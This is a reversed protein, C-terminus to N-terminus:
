FFTGANISMTKQIIDFDNLPMGDTSILEHYRKVDPVSMLSTPADRIKIQLDLLQKRDAFLSDILPQDIPVLITEPVPPAREWQQSKHAPDQYRLLIMRTLRAGVDPYCRQLIGAYICLALQYRAFSIHWESGKADRFTHCIDSAANRGMHKIKAERPEQKLPGTRKFDVIMFEVKDRIRVMLADISGALQIEEDFVAWESRVFHWGEKALQAETQLFQQWEPLRQWLLSAAARPWQQKLHQEIAFHLSTGLQAPENMKHRCIDLNSTGYWSQRRQEATMALLRKEAGYPPLWLADICENAGMLLARKDDVLYKHDAERLYLRVDRDRYLVDLRVAIDFPSERKNESPSEIESQKRKRTIYSENNDEKSNMYLSFIASFLFGLSHSCSVRSLVSDVHNNRTGSVTDYTLDFDRWEVFCDNRNINRRVVIVFNSSWAIAHDGVHLKVLANKDTREKLGGLSM